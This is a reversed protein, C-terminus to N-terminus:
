PNTPAPPSSNYLGMQSKRGVKMEIMGNMTRTRGLWSAWLGIMTMQGVAGHWGVSLRGKTKGLRM